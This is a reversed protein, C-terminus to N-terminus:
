AVETNAFDLLEALERDNFLEEVKGIRNFPAQSLQDVTLATQEDARQILLTRVAYLFSRQVVTLNPHTGVYRQFAAKIRQERSPFRQVDLIHRMFDVLRM